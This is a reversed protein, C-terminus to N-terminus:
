LLLSGLRIGDSCPAFNSHSPHAGRLGTALRNGTEPMRRWRGRRGRQGCRPRAAPLGSIIAVALLKGRLPVVPHGCM